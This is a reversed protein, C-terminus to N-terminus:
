AQCKVPHIEAIDRISGIDLIYEEPAKGNFGLTLRYEKQYEFPDKLKTFGIRKIVGEHKDGDVYEVIGNDPKLGVQKAKELFRDIFQQIDRIVLAIKGFEFMRPDMKYESFKELDSIDARTVISFCLVSVTPLAGAVQLKIFPRIELIAGNGLNVPIWGRYGADQSVRKLGEMSDNRHFEKDEAVKYKEVPTFRLKGDLIRELYEQKDLRFIGLIENLDM